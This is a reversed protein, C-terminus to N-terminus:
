TSVLKSVKNSLLEQNVKRKALNYWSTKISILTTLVIVSLNDIVSSLKFFWNSLKIVWSLERKELNFSSRLLISEFSDAFSFTILRWNISARSYKSCCILPNNGNILPAASLYKFSKASKWCVTSPTVLFKCFETLLTWFCISSWPSKVFESFQANFELCSARKSIIALWPM